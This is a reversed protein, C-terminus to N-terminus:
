NLTLTVRWIPLPLVLTPPTPNGGPKTNLTVIICVQYTPCARNNEKKDSDLRAVDKIVYPAGQIVKSQEAKM